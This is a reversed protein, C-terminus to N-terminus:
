AFQQLWGVLEEHSFQLHNGKTSNFFIKGAEDATKLGFM